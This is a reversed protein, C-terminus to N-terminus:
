IGIPEYKGFYGVVSSVESRYRKLYAVVADQFSEDELVIVMEWRDSTTPSFKLLDVDEVGPVAKIDPLVGRIDQETTGLLVTFLVVLECKIRGM